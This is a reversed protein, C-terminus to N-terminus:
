ANLLESVRKAQLNAVFRDKVIRDKKAEDFDLICYNTSAYQLAKQSCGGNCLPQIRCNNCAENKFKANVRRERSGNEWIIEGKQDLYGDRTTNLFDVATCKFVNGDYNVVVSNMYDAYCPNYVNNYVPKLALIGHDTFTEILDDVDNELDVSCTQWVQHLRVILRKRLEMPVTNIIDDVVARVSHINEPTYNLRLTVSINKQLLKEVNSLITDYSGLRNAFFRTSNHVDRHGDLTIQMSNVNFTELFSLMKDTLLSANTTFSSSYDCSGVACTEKLCEYIPVVVRQFGLLPEGGFFSVHIHKYQSALNEILRQVSSLVAADMAIGKRKEEYCYWCSFNCDLTPNITLHFSNEQLIVSQARRRLVEDEDTLDDVIFGKDILTQLTKSDVELSINFDRKSLLFSDTLANYHLKHKDSLEITSNFKSIKM